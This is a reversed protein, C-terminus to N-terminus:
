NGGRLKWTGKSPGSEFVDKARGLHVGVNGELGQGPVRWGRRQDDRELEDKIVSVHIPGGDHENLIQTCWEVMDAHRVQKSKHAARQPIAAARDTGHPSHSVSVKPPCFGAPILNDVGDWRGIMWTALGTGQRLLDSAERRADAERERASKLEDDLRKLEAAADNSNM